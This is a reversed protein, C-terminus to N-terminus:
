LGEPSKNKLMTSVEERLKILPAKQIIKEEPTLNPNNDIKRIEETISALFDRVMLVAKFGEDFQRRHKEPTSLESGELKAEDAKLRKEKKRDEVADKRADLESKPIPLRLLEHAGKANLARVEPFLPRQYAVREGIIYFSYYAVSNPEVSAEVKGALRTEDNLIRTRGPAEDGPFEPLDDQYSYGFIGQYGEPPNRVKWKLIAFGGEISHGLDISADIWENRLREDFVHGLFAAAGVLAVWSGLLFVYREFPQGAVIFVILSAGWLVHVTYTLFRCSKMGWFM